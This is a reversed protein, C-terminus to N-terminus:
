YRGETVARLCMGADFKEDPIKCNESPLPFGRWDAARVYM